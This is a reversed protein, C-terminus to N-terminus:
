HRPEEFSGQSSPGVPVYTVDSCSIAYAVPMCTLMKYPTTPTPQDLTHGPEYAGACGGLLLALWLYRM